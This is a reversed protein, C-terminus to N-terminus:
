ALGRLAVFTEVIAPFALAAALVRSARFILAIGIALGISGVAFRAEWTPMLVTLAIFAVPAGALGRLGEPLARAAKVLGAFFFGFYTAVMLCGALVLLGAMIVFQQGFEFGALSTTTM